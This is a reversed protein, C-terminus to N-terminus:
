TAIVAILWFAFLAVAFTIVIIWGVKPRRDVPMEDRDFAPDGAPTPRQRWYPPLRWGFIGFPVVALALMLATLRLTWSLM